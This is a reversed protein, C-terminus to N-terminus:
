RRNGASAIAIAQDLNDLGHMDSSNLISPRAAGRQFDAVKARATNRELIARDREDGLASISQRQRAVIGELAAIRRAQADVTARLEAPGAAPDDGMDMDRDRGDTERSM